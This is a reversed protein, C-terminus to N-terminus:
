QHKTVYALINKFSDLTPIDNTSVTIGFEEQIEMAISVQAFSEWDDCNSASTDENIEVELIEELIEKIKSKM